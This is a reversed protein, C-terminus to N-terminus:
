GQIHCLSMHMEPFVRQRDPHLTVPFLIIAFASLALFVIWTLPTPLTFKASVNLTSFFSYIYCPKFIFEVPVPSLM